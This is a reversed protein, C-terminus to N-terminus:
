GRPLAGILQVMARCLPADIGYREANRVVGGCIADIETERKAQVDQLMSSRNDATNAAADRWRRAADEDSIAVGAARAVAAAERAL